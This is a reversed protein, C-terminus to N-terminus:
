NCVRQHEGCEGVQLRSQGLPMCGLRGGGDLIGFLLLFIEVLSLDELDWTCRKMQDSESVAHLM